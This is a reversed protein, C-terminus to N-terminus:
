RIARVIPAVRGPLVRIQTVLFMRMAQSPTLCKTCLKVTVKQWGTRSGPNTKIWAEALNRRAYTTGCKSCERNV